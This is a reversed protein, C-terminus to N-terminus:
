VEKAPLYQKMTYSAEHEHRKKNFWLILRDGERLQKLEQIQEPTLGASHSMLVGSEKSWFHIKLM